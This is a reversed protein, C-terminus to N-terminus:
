KKTEKSSHPCPPGFNEPAPQVRRGMAPPLKKFKDMRENLMNYAKMEAFGPKHDGVIRSAFASMLRTAKKAHCHPCVTDEARASVPQVLEFQEDCAGCRYEYLPM